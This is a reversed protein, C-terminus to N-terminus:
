AITGSKEKFYQGDTPDPTSLSRFFFVNRNFALVITIFDLIM